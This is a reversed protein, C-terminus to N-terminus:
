TDPDQISISVSEALLHKYLARLGRAELMAQRDVQAQDIQARLTAEAQRLRHRIRPLVKEVRRGACADQWAQWGPYDPLTKSSTM